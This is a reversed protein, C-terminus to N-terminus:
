GLAGFLDGLFNSAGGSAGSARARAERAAARGEDTKLWAKRVRARAGELAELAEGEFRNGAYSLETLHCNGQLAAALAVCVQGDFHNNSLELHALPLGNRTSFSIAEALNLGASPPLRCGPLGLTSLHPSSGVLVALQELSAEPM